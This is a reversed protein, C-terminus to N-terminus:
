CPPSSDSHTHDMSCVSVLHLHISMCFYTATFLLNIDKTTLQTQSVNPELLCWNKQQRYETAQQRLNVLREEPSCWNRAAPTPKAELLWVWNWQVQRWTLRRREADIVGTQGQLVHSWAHMCVVISYRMESHQLYATAWNVEYQMIVQRVEKKCSYKPWEKHELDSWLVM